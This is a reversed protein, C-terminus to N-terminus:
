STKGKLANIKDCVIMVHDLGYLLTRSDINMWRFLEQINSYANMIYRTSIKPKGLDFCIPEHHAIRNRLINIGDLKNFVFANNYKELRTSKPKNPFIKLLCDGTAHFNPNSFMYKWVGFELEAILKSHTYLGKDCLRNYAKEIIKKSVECSKGEYAGGPLVIDRLWDNGYKDTLEKDIANRLAIEFCSVITFMEQSLHLNLRYLSMASRTNGGSAELYRSLRKVSLVRQFDNYKM